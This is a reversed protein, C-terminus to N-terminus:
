LVFIFSANESDEVVIIWYLPLFFGCSAVINPYYLRSLIGISAKTNSNMWISSLQIWLQGSSQLVIFSAYDNLFVKFITKQNM